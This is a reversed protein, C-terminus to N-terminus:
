GEKFGIATLDQSQVHSVRLFNLDDHALGGSNVPPKIDHNVISTVAEDPRQLFHAVDLNRLVERGVKEPRQMHNSGRQRDQPRLASPM